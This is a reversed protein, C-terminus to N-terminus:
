GSAPADTAARAAALRALETGIQAQAAGLDLSGADLEGIRTLIFEAEDAHLEGVRVTVIRGQRDSFVTFPFVPELGFAAAADLGDQEGILLPYEIEMEAAYALVDERFDVAIGIVEVDQEAWERRLSKLLPIERRCPACWTAWFNVILPRGTWHALTRPEGARDNLTFSPLQSPIARSSSVEVAPPPITAPAMGRYAFYGIALGILAVGAARVAISTTNSM